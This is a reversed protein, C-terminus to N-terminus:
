QYGDGSVKQDMWLAWKDLAKGVDRVDTYIAHLRQIAEAEM